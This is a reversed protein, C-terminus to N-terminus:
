WVGLQDRSAAHARVAHVLGAPARKHTHIETRVHVAATHASTGPVSPSPSALMHPALTHAVHTQTHTHTHTHRRRM